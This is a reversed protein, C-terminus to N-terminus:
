HDIEPALGLRKVLHTSVIKIPVDMDIISQVKINNVFIDAYTCESYSSSIKNVLHIDLNDMMFLSELISGCLKPHHAKMTDMPIAVNVGKLHSTDTSPGPGEDPAKYSLSLQKPKAKLRKQSHTQVIYVDEVIVCYLTNGSYSIDPFFLEARDPSHSVGSLSEMHAEPVQTSCDPPVNPVNTPTDITSHSLGTEVRNPSKGPHYHGKNSTCTNAYHEKYNCRYCNVKSM